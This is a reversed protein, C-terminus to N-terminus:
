ILTTCGDIRITTGSIQLSEERALMCVMDATDSPMGVRIPYRSFSQTKNKRSRPFPLLSGSKQEIQVAGPAISNVTIHDTAFEVAAERCLMEMSGKSISYAADFDTPRKGHISSILIIRGNGSKKLWPYCYKMLLFAARLNVKYVKKFIDGNSMLLSHNTQLAANNVFIDLKGFRLITEDVLKKCGEDEGIDSQILIADTLTKLEHLTEEAMGLTQNCGIAVSAGRRAFELAIGKGIGKGGGTILVVKGEFEKVGVVM